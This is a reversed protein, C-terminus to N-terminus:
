KPPEPIPKWHSPHIVGMDVTEIWFDSKLDGQYEALYYVGKHFTIVEVGYEPTKDDVGIWEDDLDRIALQLLHCTEGDHYDPEDLDTSQIKSKLADNNFDILSKLESLASELLEKLESM